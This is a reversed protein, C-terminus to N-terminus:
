GQGAGVGGPDQGGPGLGGPGSSSGLQTLQWGVSFASGAASLASPNAEAALFPRGFRGRGFGRLDDVLDIQTAAWSPDAITGAHGGVTVATAGGFGVQGFNALPLPRCSGDASCASPAEAIWEASSVDPARMRLHRTFVQGSTADAIRVTVSTGKATVSGRIVDGARRTLRATVPAAPVLEYWAHYAVGGNFSCDAETGVQELAQSTRSYGGLGVWFASYAPSVSACDARPQVWTATVKRYRAGTVAYGAWNSSTSASAAAAAAPAGAGLATAAPAAIACLGLLLSRLRPMQPPHSVAGM